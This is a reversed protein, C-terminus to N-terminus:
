PSLKLDYAGPAPKEVVTVELPTTDASAYTANLTMSSEVTVKTNDPTTAEGGTVVVKYAGLPAGPKGNTQLAYEGNKIEGVCESGFDNGKKKDPRFSVYGSAVPQGNVTVKGTVPYLSSSGGGKCGGALGVGAILVAFPFLRNRLWSRPSTM